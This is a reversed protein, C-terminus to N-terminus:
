TPHVARKRVTHKKLGSHETTKQLIQFIGKDSKKHSGWYDNQTSNKHTKNKILYKIVAMKVLAFLFLMSWFMSCRQSFQLELSPCLWCDIMCM